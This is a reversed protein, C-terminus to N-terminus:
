NGLLKKKQSEFEAATLTGEDRLKVLKALEDAVSIPAATPPLQPESAAIVSETWTPRFDRGLTMKMQKGNRYLEVQYTSTKAARAAADLADEDYNKIKEGAVNTLVDGIHLGAKEAASGPYIKTIRPLRYKGQTITETDVGIVAHNPFTTGVPLKGGASGMFNIMGNHFEPGSFDTRQIQGFAMQLQMWGAAQVRSVGNVEAVNFRFYRRPPTSYSNGMLVQGLISQGTSLPSECVVESASSSTVIWKLDICRSSLKGVVTPPKEAFLMETMGSPTVAFFKDAWAATATIALAAACAAKAPYRMLDGVSSFGLAIIIPM